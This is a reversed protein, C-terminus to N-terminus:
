AWLSPRWPFISPVRQQFYRPTFTNYNWEKYRAATQSVGVARSGLLLAALISSRLVQICVSHQVQCFDMVPCCRRFIYMTYWGLVRGFMTSLKTSRQQAVDSCYRLWSAFGMSFKSTGWVRWGIMAMLPGLKGYQSSMYPLYQQKVLKKQNDTCAKTALLGVFKHSPAWIAFKQTFKAGQMELSGCAACKLCANQIRVLAM